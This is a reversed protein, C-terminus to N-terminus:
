CARPGVRKFPLYALTHPKVLAANPVSRADSEFRALKGPGLTYRICLPIM